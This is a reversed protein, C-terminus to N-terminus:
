KVKFQITKKNGKVDTVVLKNWKSKKKFYKKYKSLKFSINKKGKKIKIAKGNLKISKIGDKDNVTVKKSKKYTKKNKITVTTANDVLTEESSTKIDQQGVVVSQTKQQNQKNTTDESKDDSIIKTEKKDDKDSIDDTQESSNAGISWIDENRYPINHEIAYQQAYSDKPTVITLQTCGAFPPYIGGEYNTQVDDFNKEKMSSPIWIEKLNNCNNFAGAGIVARGMIKVSKLGTCDKFSREGVSCWGEPLLLEELGTCEEFALANIYELGKPININKLGTRGKFAGYGIEKVGEPIISNNSGVLLVDDEKRILANCSDRSDFIPNEGAVEVSELETCKDFDDYDLKTLTSPISIKKLTSCEFFAGFAVEEVGESFVVDEVGSNCFARYDVYKVSSPIIISKIGTGMFADTGIAKVTNPVVTNKCGAVLVDECQVGEGSEDTIYSLRKSKAIIANCNDRSDLIKNDQDVDIRNINTDVLACIGIGTVTKPIKLEELSVGCFSNTGLGTVGEPISTSNCASLLVGTQSNIIANCNDRSDYKANGADVEIHNLNTCYRFPNVTPIEVISKSIVVSTIDTKCFTDYGLGTVPHGDVTEPIVVDKEKGIYDELIIHGDYFLKYKYENSTVIEYENQATVRNQKIPLGVALVISAAFSWIITISIRNIRNMNRTDM